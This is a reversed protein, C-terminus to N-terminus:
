NLINYAIFMSAMGSTFGFAIEDLRHAKLYLRSMGVLGAVIFAIALLAFLSIGVVGDSGQYFPLFTYHEFALLIFIAAVLGGMGVMHASIKFFINFFFVVFLGITAGLMFASFLRPGMMYTNYFVWLYFVGSAILPGTRDTRDQMKIDKVMGLQIMLFTAFVPIAFSMLFVLFVLLFQDSIRNAGFLYPDIAMVLLLLYTAVTLPHLIISVFGSIKELM